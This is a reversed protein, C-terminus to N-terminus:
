NKYRDKWSRLSAFATVDDATSFGQLKLQERIQPDHSCLFPNTQREEAISSPLTISGTDRLVIVKALRNATKSHNPRAARAFRMNALTYEHTCYVPTEDPLEALRNLSQLMQQPSGEFLRGCGGAFLTDGSFLAESNWYCIHDLTHGPTAIIQFVTQGVRVSQGDCLPETVGTYPSNKPGFITATPYADVLTSIGAVHDPHHHTVLISDLTLKHQRLHNLVPQADGPDVVFARQADDHWIWIYNDSFAPLATLHKLDSM